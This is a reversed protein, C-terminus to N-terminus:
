DLTLVYLTESPYELQRLSSNLVACLSRVLAGYHERMGKERKGLSRTPFSIVVQHARLTRLLRLTAGPLQQELCPITKLLLVIEAPTRPPSVLIDRCEAMGPRGLHVLLAQVASVIRQDIDYAVYRVGEPLPMWPLAFPHLGCALDLVSGPVGILEFLEEYLQDMRELRERTSTHLALVERCRQRFAVADDPAPLNHTLEELLRFDIPTIYAGYVQHLKRRAAKLAEKPRAHRAAAWSAIRELTEKCLYRYKPSSGLAVVLEEVVATTM